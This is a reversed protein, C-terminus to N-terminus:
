EEYTLRKCLDEYEERIEYVTGDAMRVMTADQVSRTERREVVVINDISAFAMRINSNWGSGPFWANKIDLKIFRGM